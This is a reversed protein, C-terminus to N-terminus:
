SWREHGQFALLLPIALVLRTKRVEGESWKSREGEDNKGMCRWLTMCLQGIVNGDALEGPCGQAVQERCCAPVGQVEKALAYNIFGSLPNTGSIHASGGKELDSSGGAGSNIKQKTRRGV